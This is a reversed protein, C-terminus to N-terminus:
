EEKNQKVTDKELAEQEKLKKEYLEKKRVKSDYVLFQYIAKADKSSIGSGPKRKMRKIYREWEDPLVFDSNISRALGHCKTCTKKFKKYKEQMEKPYESVDIDKPGKDQEKLRSKSPDVVTNTDNAGTLSFSILTLFFALGVITTVM